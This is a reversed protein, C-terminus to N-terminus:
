AKNQYKRAITNLCLSCNRHAFLEQGGQEVYEVAISHIIKQALDDEFSCSCEDRTIQYYESYTLAVVEFIPETNFDQKFQYAKSICVCHLANFTTQLSM